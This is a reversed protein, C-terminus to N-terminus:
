SLLGGSHKADAAPSARLMLVAKCVAAGREAKYRKIENISKLVKEATKNIYFIHCNREILKKSHKHAAQKFPKQIFFFPIKKQLM